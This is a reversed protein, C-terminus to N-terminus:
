VRGVAMLDAGKAAENVGMWGFALVINTLVMRDALCDAVWAAMWFIWSVALGMAREVTMKVAM